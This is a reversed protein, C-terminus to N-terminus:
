FSKIHLHHTDDTLLHLVFLFYVHEKKNMFMDFKLLLTVCNFYYVVFIMGNMNKVVSVCCLGFDM